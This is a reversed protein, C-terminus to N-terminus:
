LFRADFSDSDSESAEDAGEGSEAATEVEQVDNDSSHGNETEAARENHESETPSGAVEAPVTQTSQKDQVGADTASAAQAPELNSDKTDPSAQSEIVERPSEATDVIVTEKSNGDDNNEGDAALIGLAERRKQLAAAREQQVKDFENYQQQPPRYETQARETALKQQVQDPFKDPNRRRRWKFFNFAQLSVCLSLLQDSPVFSELLNHACDYGIKRRGACAGTCSHSSTSSTTLIRLGSRYCVTMVIHSDHLSGLCRLLM